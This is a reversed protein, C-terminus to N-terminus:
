SHINISNRRFKEIGPWCFEIHIHVCTQACTPMNYANNARWLVHHYTNDCGWNVQPSVSILCTMVCTLCAGCAHIDVNLMLDPTLRWNEQIKDQGHKNRLIEQKMTGAEYISWDKKHILGTSQNVIGWWTGQGKGKIWPMNSKELNIRSWYDRLVLEACGFTAMWAEIGYGTMSPPSCYLIVWIQPPLLHDSAEQSLASVKLALIIWWSEIMLGPQLSFVIRPWKCPSSQKLPSSLPCGFKRSILWRRIWGRVKQSLYYRM